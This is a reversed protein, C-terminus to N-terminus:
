LCVMLRRARCRPLHSQRQRLVWVIALDYQALERRGVNSYEYATRFALLKNVIYFFLEFRPMAFSVEAGMQQCMAPGLRSYVVGKCLM